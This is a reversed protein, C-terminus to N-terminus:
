DGTLGTLHDLTRVYRVTELVDHVRVFNAGRQVAFGAAALSAEVRRMDEKPHFPALMSKRSVGVMVPRGLARIDPLNRLLEVNHFPTKGFGIGPDLVVAERPVGAAVASEMQRSLFAKVEAVVDDYHPDVQMTAPEGQMHMIVAGAGADAVVRAMAPDRLGTVDNVVSAGAELAKRAVEPKRTDVSIPIPSRRHISAIVSGIRRWEEEAPVPQARPRTSEGGVDLLDGGEDAIQLGRAIAATEDYHEGAESFSDPTVNLIGMVLTRRVELEFAKGQWVLPEVAM